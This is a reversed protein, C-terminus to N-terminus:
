IGRKYANQFLENAFSLVMEKEELTSMGRRYSSIVKQQVMYERANDFTIRKEPAYTVRYVKGNVNLKEGIPLWTYKIPEEKSVHFRNAIAIEGNQGMYVISNSSEEVKNYFFCGVEKDGLIVVDKIDVPLSNEFINIENQLRELNTLQEEDKKEEFYVKVENMLEKVKPLNQCALNLQWNEGKKYIEEIKTKERKMQEVIFCINKLKSLIIKEETREM